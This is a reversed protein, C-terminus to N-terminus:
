GGSHGVGELNAHGYRCRLQVCQRARDRRVPYKSRQLTGPLKYVYLPQADVKGDVSFFGVKGFSNSNVNSLTLTTEASNLGDRSPYYHYTVVDGAYGLFNEQGGSSTQAPAPTTAAASTADHSSATIASWGLIVLGSLLLLSLTLKSLNRM